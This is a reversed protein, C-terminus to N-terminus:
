KHSRSHRSNVQHGTIGLSTRGRGSGIPTIPSPTSNTGRPKYKLRSLLLLAGDAEPVKQTTPKVRKRSINIRRLRASNPLDATVVVVAALVEGAVVRVGGFGGWMEGSVIVVVIGELVVVTVVVAETM